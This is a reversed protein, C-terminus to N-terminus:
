IIVGLSVQPKGHYLCTRFLIRVPSVYGVIIVIAFILFFILIGFPKLDRQGSTGDKQKCM